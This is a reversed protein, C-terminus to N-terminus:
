KKNIREFLFGLYGGDAANKGGGERLSRSQAAMREVILEPTSSALRGLVPNHNVILNFNEDLGSAEIGDVRMFDGLNKSIEAGLHTALVVYAGKSVFWEATASIIRGAVGPETVAEIEDALILIKKTSDLSIGNMQTLLTEFAGKSASGKTKAFYYVEDFV